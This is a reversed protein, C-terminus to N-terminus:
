FFVISSKRLHQKAVTKLQNIHRDHYVGISKFDSDKLENIQQISTVNVEQLDSVFM